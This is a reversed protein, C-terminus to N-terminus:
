VVSLKEITDRVESPKVEFTWPIIARNAIKAWWPEGGNIGRHQDELGNNSHLHLSKACELGRDLESEFDRGLTISSVKLHGVDLLVGLGSGWRKVLGEIEESTTLLLSRDGWQSSTTRTLVNNEVHALVDNREAFATIEDLSRYFIDRATDYELLMSSSKLKSGLSEPTPDFCFGAHFSFEKQGFESSLRIGNKCLNLSAVRIEPSSSALNFVFPTEPPPFYNHFSFEINPFYSLTSRWDKEHDGGSLEIRTIGQDALFKIRARLPYDSTFTGTSFRLNDV